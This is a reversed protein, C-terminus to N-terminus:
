KGEWNEFHEHGVKWQYKSFAGKKEAHIMKVQGSEALSELVRKVGKRLRDREQACVPQGNAVYRVIHIMRFERGPYAALLEIVESAYKM